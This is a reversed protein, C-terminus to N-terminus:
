FKFAYSVFPIIPFLSVQSLAPDGNADRDFFLFFPNRRNYVNYAGLSWTREGWRKEKHFNVGLDLRHYAMMRYGNRQRYYEIDQAGFALLFPNSSLSSYRSTPLSVANGTGYVWTAGVDIRENIDYTIVAALDHRRDYRYPFVEGFNLNPFQRNTWSLTYGLWGKIRGVQRRILIEAGYATGTGLEVKNEWGGSLDFFNAGEKYEILNDMKKYYAEVTLDISKNLSRAYGIALQDAREPPIMGTSPVWLDTPLGVTANTLLHIFQNMRSYSLKLSSKDDLLFRGSFRPQLAPYHTKGTVFGSFQLGANFKWRSGLRFEDEIFAHYEHAFVLQSGYNTDLDAGPASSEFSFASIGPNFTHYINGIGFKIYHDPNPIFDFDVRGAWDNIGSDYGLEFRSTDRSANIQSREEVGTTVNFFYESYTLTTNVFLKQNIISNWRLATTLNGWGLGNNFSSSGSEDETEFSTEFDAFGRDRGLYSSLYIRNNDNLKHNVKANVDYFFYAAELPTGEEESLRKILPQALFDIYTRRGSVIFSTRDKIIPGELTLKSSVLGISGEGHFEKNNGEKMRIDIVSSLRGGYRAPFGGKILKVKSIADANFVSFFGFLHSANYVPVGDLLILNQDPGGGRVYIGSGGETGSQVGPLLQLTKLIDREGLLVPIQKVEQMSIESVSMQTMREVPEQKNGVIEVADLEISPDLEIRISTDADLKINLVKPSYGVYSFKLSYEGKPLTLSYFGYINSSSGKFSNPELVSAGILKEGSSKDEM